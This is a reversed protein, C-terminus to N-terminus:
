RRLKNPLIIHLSAKAFHKEFDGASVMAYELGDRRTGCPAYGNPFWHLVTIVVRYDHFIVRLVGPNGRRKAARAFVCPL